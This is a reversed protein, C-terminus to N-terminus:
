ANEKKSFKNEIMCNLLDKAMALDNQSANKPIIIQALEGSETTFEALWYSKNEGQRIGIM